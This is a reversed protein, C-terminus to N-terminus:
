PSFIPVDADKIPKWWEIGEAGAEFTSFNPIKESGAKCETEFRSFTDFLLV